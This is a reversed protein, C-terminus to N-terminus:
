LEKVCVKTRSIRSGCRNDFDNPHADGISVIDLSGELGPLIYRTIERGFVPFFDGDRVSLTRIQLIIDNSANDSPLAQLYAPCEGM